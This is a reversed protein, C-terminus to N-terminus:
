SLSMNRFGARVEDIFIAPQEMAAFHGGAATENWYCINKFRQEAWRRSPKILEKPFLSCATPIHVEDVAPNVFSHWYLRASSAATNTLWYLTINDLLRDRGYLEIFNDSSWEGFKEAIWALQGLPSDALAYGITQPRTGQIAAYGQGKKVYDAFHALAIQEEETPAELIEKGPGGVVVLNLHIAACHGKNQAGILATVMGGWDGGQAFYREYGLRLMLTDWSEAIKEVSWGPGTPKGSLGYGPLSPIVLHFADSSDGGHAVPNTLADIVELFEIISGPWGHTMLLPRADPNPSRVHLFHIDVDDIRTKFNAFRNLKAECRRWDYTTRWYEALATVMKLPIGQSWDDVTEREPLRSHALRSKLDDVSHQPFVIEFQTIKDSM